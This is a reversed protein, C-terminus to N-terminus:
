VRRNESNTIEMFTDKCGLLLAADIYLETYNEFTDLPLPIIQDNMYTMPSFTRAGHVWVNVISRYVSKELVYGKYKRNYAEIM